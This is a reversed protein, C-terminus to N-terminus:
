SYYVLDVSFVLKITEETEEFIIPYSDLYVSTSLIYGEKDFNVVKIDGVLNRRYHLQGTENNWNLDYWDKLNKITYKNNEDNENKPIVITLEQKNPPPIDGRTIFKYKIEPKISKFDLQYVTELLLLRNNKENISEFVQPLTIMIEYFLREM